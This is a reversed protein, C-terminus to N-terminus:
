RRDGHGEDSGPYPGGLFFASGTGPAHQDRTPAPVGERTRGVVPARCRGGEYKKLVLEYKASASHVQNRM